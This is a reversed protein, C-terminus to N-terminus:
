KNRKGPVTSGEVPEPVNKIGAKQMQSRNWRVDSVATTRGPWLKRVEAAIQDDTLKHEGIRARILEGSTEPKSEKTFGGKPVAGPQMSAKKKVPPSSIGRIRVGPDQGAQKKAKGKFRSVDLPGGPAAASAIASKRGKPKPDLKPMVNLKGKKKLEHLRKAKEAHEKRQKDTCACSAHLPCPVSSIRNGHADTAMEDEKEIPTTNVVKSVVQKVYHPLHPGVEILRRAISSRQELTPTASQDRMGLLRLHTGTIEIEMLGKPVDHAVEAQHILDVAGPTVRIEEVAKPALALMKKAPKATKRRKLKSKRM